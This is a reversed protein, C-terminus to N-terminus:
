SRWLSSVQVTPYRAGSALLVPMASHQAPSAKMAALNSPMMTRRLATASPGCGARVWKANGGQSQAGGSAICLCTVGEASAPYGGAIATQTTQPRMDAKWMSGHAHLLTTVNSAPRGPEQVHAHPSGHGMSGQLGQPVAFRQGTTGSLVVHKPSHESMVITTYLYSTFARANMQSTQM